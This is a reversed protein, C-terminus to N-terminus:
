LAAAGRRRPDYPWKSRDPGYKAMIHAKAHVKDIAKFHVEYKGGGAPKVTASMSYGLHKAARFLARKIEAARERDEIGNYVLMSYHGNEDHKGGAQMVSAQVMHDLVPEKRRKWEPTPGRPM